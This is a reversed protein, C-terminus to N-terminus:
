PGDTKPIHRCRAAIPSDALSGGPPPGLSSRLEHFSDICRRWGRGDGDGSSITCRIGQLTKPLGRARRRSVAHLRRRRARPSQPETRSTGRCRCGYPFEGSFSCRAACKTKSGTWGGHFTHTRPSPLRGDLHARSVRSGRRFCSSDVGGATALSDPCGPLRPLRHTPSDPTHGDGDAEAGRGLWRPCRAGGPIGLAKSGLLPRRSLAAGRAERRASPRLSAKARM